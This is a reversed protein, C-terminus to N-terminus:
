EDCKQGRTQIREINYVELADLFLDELDPLMRSMLALVLSHGFLTYRMDNGKFKFSPSLIEFTLDLIKPNIESIIICKEVMSLSYFYVHFLDIRDDERIDQFTHITPNSKRTVAYFHDNDFIREFLNKLKQNM